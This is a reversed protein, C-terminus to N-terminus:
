FAADWIGTDRTPYEELPHTQTFKRLDALSSINMPNYTLLKLYNQLNVVFDANRIIAPLKSKSLEIAATFNTDEVITAGATRLVELVQDFAEIQPGSINDVDFDLSLINRPVGLRAGSLASLKCAAIYDPLKGNPIASTYNDQPDVGAIAQLICAADKV